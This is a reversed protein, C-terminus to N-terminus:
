NASVIENILQAAQKRTWSLDEPGGYVYVYLVKGKLFLFTTTLTVIVDTKESSKSMEYKIFMSHSTLREDQRHVPMPVVNSLSLALEIDLTESVRNSLGVMKEPMSQEFKAIV